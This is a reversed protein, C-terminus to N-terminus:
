VEVLPEGYASYEYRLDLCHETPLAPARSVSFVPGGTRVLLALAVAPDLEAPDTYVLEAPLVRVVAFQPLAATSLRAAAALFRQDVEALHLATDLPEALASRCDRGEALAQAIVMLWRRWLHDATLVDRLERSRGTPVTLEISRFRRWASPAHEGLCAFLLGPVSVRAFVRLARAQTPDLTLPPAVATVPKCDFVIRPPASMNRAPM